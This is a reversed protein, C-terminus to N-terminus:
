TAPICRGLGCSSEEAVNYPPLLSTPHPLKEQLQSSVVGAPGQWPPLKLSWAPAPFTTSKYVESTHTPLSARNVSVLRFMETSSSISILSIWKIPWSIFSKNRCSLLDPKQLKIAQRYFLFNFININSETSPFCNVIAILYSLFYYCGQRRMFILDHINM